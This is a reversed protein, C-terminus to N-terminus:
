QENTEELRYTSEVFDKAEQPTPFPAFKRGEWQIAGTRSVFISTCTTGAVTGNPLSHVVRLEWSMPVVGPGAHWPAWTYRDTLPLERLTGGDDHLVSFM